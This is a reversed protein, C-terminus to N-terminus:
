KRLAPVRRFAALSMGRAASPTVGFERGFAGTFHSHSTFGSEYAIRSLQDRSQFIRDAAHHLRVRLLHRHITTGTAARFLRCVRFPSSQVAGAIVDLTLRERFRTVMVERIREACERAGVGVESPAGARYARALVKGVFGLATEEVALGDGGAHAARLIAHSLLLAGSDIRVHSVPFLPLEPDGAKGDFSALLERIGHAPIEFVTCSDSDGAPHSVRYGRHPEYFVVTGPDALVQDRGSHRLYAGRRTVVIQYAGATEERGPATNEGHCQWDEVRLTRSHFALRRTPGDLSESLEPM